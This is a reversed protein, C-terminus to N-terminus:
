AKRRMPVVKGRPELLSRLTALAARKEDLYTHKDYHADQVGGLGHSQLHARTEKSVGAAALRTEVTIRLEGPTFPEAAEGAKVMAAAVKGVQERVTHYVAGHTGGDLTFLHLGADGTMTALAAVADPLLPVVHERIRKRRGKGDMLTITGADRDYGRTTLRALQECRQAGTLLHFRLLAGHPGKMGNIHRWYAALEDTSLSRKGPRAQGNDDHQPRQITALDRAINPVHAFDAFLDATGASGRSAVAATYAARLYSRTKEAQRWKDAKVLRGTIRVLDDLTVDAAPLKWLAPFADRVTRWLESEVKDASPKKGRRLQEVYATLLGGLTAGSLARKAEAEVRAAKQRAFPDGGADVVMRLKRAADRATTVTYPGYDGIKQRRERGTATVYVLLFTKLGAATTRVAFGRVFDTDRPGKPIDYDIRNGAEPAALSRLAKDDLKIKAM